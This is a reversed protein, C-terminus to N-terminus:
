FPIDDSLDDNSVLKKAKPKALGVISEEKPIYDDVVNKDKYFTGDDKKGGKQSILKLKGSKHVMDNTTLTKAEYKETLGLADALHRWKFAMSGTQVAYDVIHQTFDSGDNHFVKLCVVAMPNGGKGNEKVKSTKEETKTTKSGFDIEEIVTFDYDGDPWVPFSGKAAEDAEERTMVDYVM